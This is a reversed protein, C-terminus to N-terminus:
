QKGSDRIIMAGFPPKYDPSSDTWYMPDGKEVIHFLGFCPAADWKKVYEIDTTNRAPIQMNYYKGFDPWARACAEYIKAHMEDTYDKGYKKNSFFVFHPIGFKESNRSEVVGAYMCSDASGFVDPLVIWDKPYQVYGEKLFSIKMGPDAEANADYGFYASLKEYQDMRKQVENREFGSLKELTTQEKLYQDHCFSGVKEAVDPSIRLFLDILKNVISSNSKGERKAQETLLSYEPEGFDISVKKKGFM